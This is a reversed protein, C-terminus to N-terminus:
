EEKNKSFRRQFLKVCEVIPIVLIGLGIAILYETLGVSTFNFAGALLPIECVLTTALLSGAGAIFLTKNISGLTFM